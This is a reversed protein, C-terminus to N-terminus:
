GWSGRPGALTKTTKELAPVQSARQSDERLLGENVHDWDEKELWSPFNGLPVLPELVKKQVKCLSFRPLSWVPPSSWVTGLISAPAQFGAEVWPRVRVRCLGMSEPSPGCTPETTHHGANARTM